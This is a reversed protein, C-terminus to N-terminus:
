IDFETNNICKSLESCYSKKTKLQDNQKSFASNDATQQMKALKNWM